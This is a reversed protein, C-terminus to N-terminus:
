SCKKRFVEKLSRMIILVFEQESSNLEDYMEQETTKIREVEYGKVEGWILVDASIKFYECIYMIDQITYQSKYRECNSVFDESRHIIEAFQAQTKKKRIRLSKVRDTVEFSVNCM